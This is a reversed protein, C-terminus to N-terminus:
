QHRSAYARREDKFLREALSAFHLDHQRTQATLLAHAIQRQSIFDSM